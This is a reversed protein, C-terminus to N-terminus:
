GALDPETPIVVDGSASEKISDTEYMLNHLTADYESWKVTEDLRDIIQTIASLCNRAYRIREMAAKRQHESLGRLSQRTESQWRSTQCILWAAIQARITPDLRARNAPMRQVIPDNPAPLLHVPHVQPLGNTNM